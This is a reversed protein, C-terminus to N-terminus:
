NEETDVVMPLATAPTLTESDLKTSASKASLMVQGSSSDETSPKLTACKLSPMTQGPLDDLVPINRLNEKDERAEESSHIHPHILYCGRLSSIFDTLM